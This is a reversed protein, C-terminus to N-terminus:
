GGAGSPDVAGGPVGAGAKGEIVRRFALIGLPGVMTSVGILAWLVAPHRPGTAPCLAALLYGSSPGVLFKALFWPLSSLSVYTSESRPSWLAEGATLMVVMGVQYAYSSGFCLVFPSAASVFAGVLLVNLVPMKRTLAAAVPAFGLILLSNLGWIKGWPFEDGQERVVYKPWTFHMHQFMMRVLSLFGLLLLFRWFPKDGVVERLLALPNTRPAATPGNADRGQHEIRARILVTCAFAAMATLTGVGMIARYGSMPTAGLLPLVLTRVSLAHTTPDIFPARTADVVYGALTGGVNVAMYWLTFAFARADPTSYRHVSAQLVPGSTAYAFAFAMLSGIAMAETPALAMAARTVACLGFSWVLTRRMGLVDAVSGVLLVLLSILTAFTAAWWGAREDSLAFDSSLWLPLTVIFSFVGVYEFISAGYVLWLERPCLLLARLDNVLTRRQTAGGSDV